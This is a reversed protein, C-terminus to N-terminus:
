AILFALPVVMNDWALASEWALAWEGIKLKMIKLDEMYDSVMCFKDATTENWPRGDDM